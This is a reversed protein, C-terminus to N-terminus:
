SADAFDMSMITNGKTIRAIKFHWRTLYNEHQCVYTLRIMLSGLHSREALECQQIPGYIEAVTTIQGVLVSIQSKMNGVLPNSEFALEVADQFKNAKLNSIIPDVTEAARSYDMETPVAVTEPDTAFASTPFIAAALLVASVKHSVRM